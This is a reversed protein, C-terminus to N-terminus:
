SAKEEEACHPCDDVVASCEGELHAQLLAEDMVQHFCRVWASQSEGVKKVRVQEAM